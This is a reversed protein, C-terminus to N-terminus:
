EYVHESHGVKPSVANEGEGDDGENGSYIQMNQRQHEFGRGKRSRATRTEEDSRGRRLGSEKSLGEKGLFWIVVM